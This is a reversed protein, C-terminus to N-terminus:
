ALEQIAELQILRIIEILMLLKIIWNKNSKYFSVSWESLGHSGTWIKFGAM